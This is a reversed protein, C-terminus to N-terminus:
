ECMWSHKEMRIEKNTYMVGYERCIAVRLCNRIVFTYCFYSFAFCVGSLNVINKYVSQKKFGKLLVVRVAYSNLLLGM